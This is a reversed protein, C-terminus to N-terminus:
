TTQIGANRVAKVCLTGTEPLAVPEAWKTCAGDGNSVLLTVPVLLKVKALVAEEVEKKSAASSVFLVTAEDTWPTAM